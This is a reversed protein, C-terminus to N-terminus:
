LPNKKKVKRQHNYLFPTTDYCHDNRPSPTRTGSSELDAMVSFFSDPSSSHLHHGNLYPFTNSTGFLSPTYFVSEFGDYVQKNENQEHNINGNNNSPAALM